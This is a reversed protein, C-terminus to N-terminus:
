RRRRSPHKVECGASWTWASPASAPWTTASARFACALDLAPDRRRRLCRAQMLQSSGTIPMIGPVIPDGRWAARTTWFRSYADANFFYQTIASPRCRAGQHRLGAPRGRSSARRRLHMEPYAAVEIIFDRGTEQRIFAVLILSAYQFEEGLGYGSPLDGRM